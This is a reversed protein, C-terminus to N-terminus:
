EQYLLKLMGHHERLFRPLLLFWVAKKNELNTLNVVVAWQIYDYSIKNLILM